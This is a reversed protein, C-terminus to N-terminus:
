SQTSAEVCNRGEQPYVFLESVFGLSTGPREILRPRLGHSLAYNIIACKSDFTWEADGTFPIGNWRLWATFEFDSTHEVDVVSGNRRCIPLPLIDLAELRSSTQLGSKAANGLDSM